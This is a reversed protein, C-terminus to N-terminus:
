VTWCGSADAAAPTSAIRPYQEIQEELAEIQEDYTDIVSPHDEVITRDAESLSLETLLAATTVLKDNTGSSYKHNNFVIAICEFNAVLLYVPEAEPRHTETAWINDTCRLILFSSTIDKSMGHVQTNVKDVSSVRVSGTHAFSKDTLCQFVISINQDGRLHTEETVRITVPNGV